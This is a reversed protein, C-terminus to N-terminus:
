ETEVVIEDIEMPHEHWIMESEGTQRHISYGEAGGTYEQDTDPHEVTIEWTDEHEIVTICVDSNYQNRFQTLIDREKQDKQLKIAEDIDIQEPPEPSETMDTVEEVAVTACGSLALLLGMFLVANKM